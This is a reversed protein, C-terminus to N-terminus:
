LLLGPDRKKAHKFGSKVIGKMMDMDCAFSRGEDDCCVASALTYMSESHLGKYVHSIALEATKTPVENVCNCKKEIIHLGFLTHTQCICGLFKPVLSEGKFEFHLPTQAMHLRELVSEVVRYVTINGAQREYGNQPRPNNALKEWLCAKAMPSIVTLYDVQCNKLLWKKWYDVEADPLLMGVQASGIASHFYPKFKYMIYLINLFTVESDILEFVIEKARSLIKKREALDDGDTTEWRWSELLEKECDSARKPVSSLLELEKRIRDEDMLRMLYQLIVALPVEPEHGNQLQALLADEPSNNVLKELKVPIGGGGCEALTSIIKESHKTIGTMTKSTRSIIRANQASSRGGRIRLCSNPTSASTTHSWGGLMWSGRRTSGRNCLNWTAYPVHSGPQNIPGRRTSQPLSTMSARCDLQLKMLAAKRATSIPRRASTGGRKQMMVTAWVRTGMKRTSVRKRTPTPSRRTCRMRDRPAQRRARLLFRRSDLLFASARRAAEAWCPGRSDVAWSGTEVRATTRQHEEAAEM